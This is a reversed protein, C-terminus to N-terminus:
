GWRPGLRRWVTALPERIGRVLLVTVAREEPVRRADRLVAAVRVERWLARWEPADPESTVVLAVDGDSPGPGWAWFDGVPTIPYPLGRAPGHVALAGAQGYNGAVIAARARDAPPLARWVRAVTDAQARWGLMDAYDQPLALTAGVNTRTGGVRAAYRAMPEPALLPVGLPLLALGTAALLAPTGARVVVRAGRVRELAVAGAAILLPYAPGAYYEKGRLVLYWTVLLTAFVGIWRVAAIRRADRADADGDHAGGGARGTAAWWAGAAALPAAGGLMLGQGALYAGPAVHVLQSARLAAMQALFPWGHAQQGAFTAAGIVLATAAGLWPWPTRLQARAAPVVLTAAFALAGYLPASLKTLTGLGFMVGALLWWRPADRVLALVVGLLAGACWLQDFVVPQMLVSARVFLPAALSALAAMACAWAGGGLARVAVLMALLTAGGALAAPLRAALVGDGVLARSARAIAPLLPPFQMRFWDLHDGMAFYLLEDRHFEWTADVLVPPLAVRACVLVAVLLAVRPRSM